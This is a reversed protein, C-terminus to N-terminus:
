RPRCPALLAMYPTYTEKLSRVSHYLAVSHTNPRESLAKSHTMHGKVTTESAKMHVYSMVTPAQLLPVGTYEGKSPTM